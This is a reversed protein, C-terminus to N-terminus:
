VENKVVEQVRQLAHFYNTKLGGISTKLVQSIEEYSLEEFFRMVFVARQKEPLAGLAAELRSETERFELEWDARDGAPLFRRLIDSQQVYAVLQQKRIVNLSLSVTIRYLWTLFSADSRFDGLALYAKVFTEQAIVDAERHTGTLRRAIWYIRHLYRRM